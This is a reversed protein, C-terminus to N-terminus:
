EQETLHAGISELIDVMRQRTEKLTTSQVQSDGECLEFLYVQGEYTFAAFAVDAEVFVEKDGEMHSMLSHTLFSGLRVDELGEIDLEEYSLEEPNQLEEM